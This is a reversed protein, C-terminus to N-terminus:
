WSEGGGGGGLELTAFDCVFCYQGELSRDRAFLEMELEGEEADVDVVVGERKSSVTGWVWFVVRGVVRM